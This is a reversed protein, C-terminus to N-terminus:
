LSLSEGRAFFQPRLAGRLPGSDACGLRSEELYRRPADRGDEHNRARYQARRDTSSIKKM